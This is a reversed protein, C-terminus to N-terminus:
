ADHLYNGKGDFVRKPSFAPDDKRPDEFLVPEADKQNYKFTASVKECKFCVRIEAYRQIRVKLREAFHPHPHPQPEGWPGIIQVPGCYEHACDNQKKITRYFSLIKKIAKFM